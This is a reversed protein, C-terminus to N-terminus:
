AKQFLSGLLIQQLEVSFLNIIITLEDCKQKYNPSVTTFLELLDKLEESSLSIKHIASIKYLLLKPYNTDYVTKIEKMKNIIQDPIICNQNFIINYAMYTNILDIIKIGLERHCEELKLFAKEIWSTDENEDRNKNSRNFRGILIAIVGQYTVTSKAISNNTQIIKEALTDYLNLRKSHAFHENQLKREKELEKNINRLYYGVFGLFIPIVVASILPILIKEFIEFWSREM